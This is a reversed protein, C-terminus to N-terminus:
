VQGQVSGSRPHGCSRQVTSGVEHLIEEKYRIMKRTDLWKARATGM